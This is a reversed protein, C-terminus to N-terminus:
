APQVSKVVRAPVGYAVVNPPVDHLVVAGAGVITQAGIHVRDTVIAGIGVWAGRGVHVHGGLHVGPSVHAGGELVCDHDVSACTNVIVNEGISVGPNIVAGAAVVTGAGITVDGAIVAAPHIATALEFGKARVLPTLRLRAAGNGFGLLVYQIGKRLLGDLQEAGGLISAGCFPEHQRDPNVDDLFGSIEYEGCVRVIDAVVTAHGAAGWIVLKRGMLRSKEGKEREGMM